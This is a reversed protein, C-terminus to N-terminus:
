DSTTTTMQGGHQTENIIISEDRDVCTCDRTKEEAMQMKNSLGQFFLRLSKTHYSAEGQGDM